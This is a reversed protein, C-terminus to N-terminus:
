KQSDSRTLDRQKCNPAFFDGCDRLEINKDDVNIDPSSSWQNAISELLEDVDELRYGAVLVGVNRQLETFGYYVGSERAITVDIGNVARYIVASEDARLVVARYDELLVDAPSVNVSIPPLESKISTGLLATQEHFSTPQITQPFCAEAGGLEFCWVSDEQSWSLSLAGSFAESAILLFATISYWPLSRTM